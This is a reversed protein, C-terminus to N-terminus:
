FQRATIVMGMVFHNDISDVKYREKTHSDPLEITDGRTMKKVFDWDQKRAVFKLDKRTTDLDVEESLADGEVADFMSVTLTQREGSKLVVKIDTQYFPNFADETDTFPSKNKKAYKM